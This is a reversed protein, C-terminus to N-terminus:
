DREPDVMYFGRKHRVRLDDNKGDHDVDMPVVEIKIEKLDDDEELGTPVFGLSYQYRLQTAVTEYIGYYEAQFRPFFAMGGSAKAFQRLQNEAQALSLRDLSSIQNTTELVLRAYQALGLAYIVTDAASVRELTDGYRSRSITDIGTSILFIAKKGDINEMRDLTFNIADFLSTERFTPIQMQQLGALLEGRDRTFDTLIEPSQDYSILAAWDDTRLAQLFGWAPQRVDEYYYGFTQGFELLLVVTLPAETPSFNTIPQEVDDVLVRFDEKQLGSVPNDDRDTVMVDVNVVNVDISLAFRDNPDDDVPVGEVSEDLVRVNEGLDRRPGQGLVWGTTALSLAVFAAIWRLNRIKMLFRTAM